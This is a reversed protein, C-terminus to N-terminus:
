TSNQPKTSSHRIGDLLVEIQHRPYLCVLDPRVRYRWPRKGVPERYREIGVLRKRRFFQGETLQQTNMDLCFEGYLVWLDRAPLDRTRSAAILWPVFYELPPAPGITGPSDRSPGPVTHLCHEITLKKLKEPM